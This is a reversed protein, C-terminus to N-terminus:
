ARSLMKDLEGSRLAEMTKDCGGVHEQNIFVNPVTRQGTMELLAMQVAGGNPLRNLEIAKYPEGMSDFLQKVRTSFSCSTKSFIVVRTGSNQLADAILEKPALQGDKGSAGMAWDRMLLAGPRRARAAGVVGARRARASEAAGATRRLVVAGCGAFAVGAMRL